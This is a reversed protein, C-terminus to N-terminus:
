NLILNKYSMQCVWVGFTGDLLGYLRVKDQWQMVILVLNWCTFVPGHWWQQYVECFSGYGNENGEADDGQGEIGQDHQCGGLGACCEVQGFVQGGAQGIFLIM